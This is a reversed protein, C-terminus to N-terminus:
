KVKLPNLLKVLIKFQKRLDDLNPYIEGYRWSVYAQSIDQIINTVIDPHYERSIKVYELPTQAPHKTYGKEQLLGLMKQYLQEVPPLKALRRQFRLKKLQLWSLWGMLGCFTALIFGIIGGLLSSSIFKWLWGIFQFIKELVENFLINFFSVIPSPLWSAVWNWLQKLVSFQVVEEFSPPILDHGPIPDFAYWDYNPFYVETLAYADTNKVEYFGTFPNFQGQSFGVTLRSPIGLSRLMMTLVTSFHDPYGGQYKFLFEKVLDNQKEFFPLDSIIEYNQKLAQALYLSKEYNTTLPKPSKALLEEAKQKVEESIEAPIQLYYQKILPSYNQPATNLLTQNRYPVQSIVTYTLGEILAGPSRLSGEPDVAIEKTPFFLYQPSALAPILNPLTSTLTYSQIVEKTKAKTMPLGIFFRYSWASRTLNILQEDRSVKWGQGTYHDFSLVKWFGPAQSRVRMVIKPKMTGRLNQNMQSNFGYYFTEDIQGLGVAQNTAVGSGNPNTEKGEKVYGPNIITRNQEDFSKQSLESPSSVPFSQIQYGSFRPMIAFIALGIGMILLFVIGLRYPSLPSYKLTSTLPITKKFTNLGLRSHYDLVLTPLALLLFLLLWPAFAVTQSVTGAVGLLILGIVMSYGLDKRRPLDFSHLVQLQTLLQALAIRTDPFLTLLNVLFMGLVALMGIAILFKATINRHRRRYWSWAAGIISLPIAWLSMQTDAAVDTAIIGVIVLAQVLIRLLLSEETQPHPQNKIQQQLQSFWSKAQPQTTTM